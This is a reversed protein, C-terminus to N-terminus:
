DANPIFHNLVNRTEVGLYVLLSNVGISQPSDAMIPQNREKKDDSGSYSAVVAM